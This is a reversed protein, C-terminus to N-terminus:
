LASVRHHPAHTETSLHKHRREHISDCSMISAHAPTPALCAGPASACHVQFHSFSLPVRSRTIACSLVLSTLAYHICIFRLHLEKQMEHTHTDRYEQLKTHRTKTAPAATPTSLDAVWARLTGEKSTYKGKKHAM